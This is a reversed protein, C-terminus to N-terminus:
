LTILMKKKQQGAVSKLKRHELTLQKHCESHIAMLNGLHNKGGDKFPIKHHLQIPDEMEMSCGCWGCVGEQDLIKKKKRQDYLVTHLILSKSRKSFYAADTLLFPNKPQKIAIMIQNKFTTQGIQFLTIEQKRENQGSFVWRNLSKKTKKTKFYKRLTERRKGRGHKRYVWRLLSRFTHESVKRFAARSSVTRYHEAWGRLVPNLHKILTGAEGNPYKKIIESIKRLIDTLNKKSPKVLFIGKKRGSIRGADPYERFHFGLFDFGEEVTSVKTKGENVKLGRTGLFERIIRKVEELQDRSEGVVVFDDAYRVLFAKSKATLEANLAKEIGDLCFNALCPSLVGGQPVGQELSTLHSGDLVKAGLLKRLIGTDMPANELLWRQNITDFFKRIDVELVYRKGYKSACMLRIYEAADRVSRAKRFGFSRSDALTEVVPELTYLYLAQVARDFLTPIGLSRKEVKGPKPLWVRKLPLPEYDSLDKLRDVANLKSYARCWRQNDVGPTRKGKSSTVKRVALARIAFMRIMKSQIREIEKHDGRKTAIVLNNQNEALAQECEKWRITNWNNQTKMSNNKQMKINAKQSIIEHTVPFRITEKSKTVCKCYDLDACKRTEGSNCARPKAVVKSDTGNCNPM